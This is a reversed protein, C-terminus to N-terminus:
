FTVNIGGSITRVPAYNANTSAGSISQRPDLGKRASWCYINDATLYLRIRDISLRRTLSQPLTFGFNISRLSLYSASTLWRDSTANAYQDGWQVRPINSSPNEPSWANLLDASFNGGPQSTGSVNGMLSAYDSDYVKGGIQYDFDVSLDFWKYNTSLGFGGYATPLATGCLHSDLIPDLSAYDTTVSQLPHGNEDCVAKNNEDVVTKYYLAEGTVKDTGAYKPLWFTYISEGEGYFYNSSSFGEVGDSTMTRRQEPLKTIKNKYLTINGHLDVTWDKTNLVRGNLEIEVGQNAMDGINTYYSSFGFSPAMPFSFLMDSTKRYFYEVNGTLRDNFFAFEVGTNFNGGKEWTINPNGYTSPQAAPHGASNVITYTNTYRYSGIQDNGQEGYSAKLKLSNVFPANFWSEKHILWGLGGSWFNGWRHDPHFRSSGDRRFSLSAFYRSDYDYLVRGLWGENNYETTYSNSSQNTIAGVLEHNGPDFMNYKSASLMYGKDWYNEHVLTVGVNHKDFLHNWNLMQQFTYSQTRIHGKTVIGNNDKYLGYYPNTVYTQRTEDLSMANNSTFKFDKLFRVEVFGNVNFANGELENTDLYSSAIANSQGFIPRVLNGNNDGWDYVTNGYADEMIEGNGNRVYLPYIPAVQNAIAFVNMTSAVDGDEDMARTKFRAYNVSGGVKLWPKAMIEARLSSTLRKYDSNPTIGENSLWGISAYFNSKDDGQSISVNYEQRLSHRYAADLWNDPTIYYEQGGSTFHRGLRANPNIKGDMGILPYSVGNADVPLTYVNYGLSKTADSDDFMANNAWANAAEPTMGRSNIAYNNLMNYYMEYYGATSGIKDYDRSARSNCGWKADLTVVAQNSQGKKTTILIVGNAGRAGYLANSAADKLVTMSAIDSTSFNNIDGSYPVGDVVILPDNGAMISSIGRIRITPSEGGPAGSANVLQVGPVNGKLADLVNTVQVKEIEAAGVVAASGTFSSKKATGYAVVMVEDMVKSSPELHVVINNGKASVTKGTYGVYSVSLKSVNKPINLTFKGDLDTAVGQGGGVPMVTVGVLPDGNSADLVTGHLVHQADASVALGLVMVLLLFLKKM